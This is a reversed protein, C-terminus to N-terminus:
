AYLFPHLFKALGMAVGIAVGTAIGMAREQPKDGEKNPTRHASCVIHVHAHVRTYTFQGGVCRCPILDMSAATLFQTWKREPVSNLGNVDWAPTPDM